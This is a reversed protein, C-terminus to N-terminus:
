QPCLLKNRYGHIASGCPDEGPQSSWCGAGMELATLEVSVGLPSPDAREGKECTPWLMEPSTREGQGPLGVYPLGTGNALPWAPCLLTCPCGQWARSTTWRQLSLHGGLQLPIGLFSGQALHCRRHRWFPTCLQPPSRPLLAGQGGRLSCCYAIVWCPESPQSRSPSHRSQAAPSPWGAAALGTSETNSQATLYSRFCFSSPSASSCNTRESKWM